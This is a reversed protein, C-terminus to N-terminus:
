GIAKQNRVLLHGGSEDGCNSAGIVTMGPSIQEVPKGAQLILLEL